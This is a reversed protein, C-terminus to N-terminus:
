HPRVGRRWDLYAAVPGTVTAPDIADIPVLTADVIERNDLEVTPPTACRLEFFTVTDIRGDWLGTAVHVERLGGGDADIALEEDLERLAAEAATEGPSVGGGPMSLEPRYSQRVLLMSDGVLVAVLAGQHRPRTVRWLLRASRFGTAFAARYLPDMLQRM